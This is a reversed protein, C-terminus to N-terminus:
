SEFFPDEEEPPEEAAEGEAAQEEEDKEDESDSFVLREENDKPETTAMSSGPIFSLDHFLTQYDIRGGGLKSRGRFRSKVKKIGNVISDRLAVLATRKIELYERNFERTTQAAEQERVWAEQPLWYKYQSVDRYFSRRANQRQVVGASHEKWDGQNAVLPDADLKRSWGLQPTQYGIPMPPPKVHADLDVSVMKLMETVEDISADAYNRWMILDALRAELFEYAAKKDVLMEPNNVYWNEDFAREADAARNESLAMWLAPVDKLPLVESVRWSIDVDPEARRAARRAARVMEARSSVVITDPVYLKGERM